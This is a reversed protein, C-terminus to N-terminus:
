TLSQVVSDALLRGKLTLIAQSDRNLADSSILGNRALANLEQKLKNTSEGHSNINENLNTQYQALTEISLGSSLRLELFIKELSIEAATLQESGAIPLDGDTIMTAWQRPHAVNWFRTSGIHSHAGPGIGLWDGSHWYVLNHRCANPGTIGGRAWNSIEYWEFGAKTLLKDALEYKEAMDDDDPKLVQSNAIQRGLKTNPAVTLAYASIHDVGTSIAAQVSQRWDDLSEGPTGYILDLSPKLGNAQAWKVVQRINDPNHTRDLAKLVHPVASQMGFSIRTFGGAALEVIDQETVSDPNAETTIEADSTIGWAERIGGLIKVLDSAPLVTPTGGGFYVTTVGRPAHQNQALRVEELALDPYAKQSAGGGLDSATYTNFDCYGCRRSCFPVHVYVSFPLNSPSM